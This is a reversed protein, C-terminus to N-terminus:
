LKKAFVLFATFSLFSHEPRAIKGDIKWPREITETVKTLALKNKKIEKIVQIVQTIQPCYVALFGGTKLAKAAHKVAKYSDQLDLTVLDANRESIGRTVDKHRSKINAFGFNDFNKQSLDVFEKRSEYTTVKGKEGVVNALQMALWGSGSGADVVIMGNGLGTNAVIAGFDKPLITAPGRKSKRLVDLINTKVM